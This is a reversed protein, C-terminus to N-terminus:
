PSLHAEVEKGCLLFTSHEGTASRMLNMDVDDHMSLHGDCKGVIILHAFKEAVNRISVSSGDMDASQLM